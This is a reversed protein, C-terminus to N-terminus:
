AAAVQAYCLLQAAQGDFTCYVGTRDGADGVARLQYYYDSGSRKVVTGGLVTGDGVALHPTTGKPVTVKMTYVAGKKLSVPATTDSVAKVLKAPSNVAALSIQGETIQAADSVFMDGYKGKYTVSISHGGSSLNKVLIKGVSNTKAQVPKGGDVQVEITSGGTPNKGDMVQVTATYSELAKASNVMKIRDQLGYTFSGGNQESLRRMYNATVIDLASGEAVYPLDALMTYGDGGAVEFDNSVLLLKTSSDSRDLTKVDKGDAGVLAIETVRSGAPKAIDFTFRMGSVQPFAGQASLVGDKLENKVGNELAAYLKDPAIEKVSLSNGFPLVNIVDGVTIKGAPITARVGGGNELAVMPLSEYQSKGAILEKGGYVMADAVLSGLNTEGVRCVSKGNYTGGYLSTDTFGVEQALTPALAESMSDYLKTVAADAKFQKGVDAPSLNSATVSVKGSADFALVMKGLNSAGAGTQEIVTNGVKASETSHSHGDIIADIGPVQQAIEHSTPKSSADVGVHLIGIVADAKQAQLAAVQAKATAIEGAFTVGKLNNPNTKYATEATSIGFFGIKKGAVTKIFWGGNEDYVDGASKTKASNVGKLFAQSNDMANAAVVPFDALKANSLVADRGYDFEHNGLTMGDYGAANMLKIIDAGQSYTALAVGQTADGADILLSNPTSAKASKLVDMGIQSLTGDDQYSSNVKGHIDNTHYITVTAAGAAFAATGCFTGLALALALVLSLFRSGQKASM